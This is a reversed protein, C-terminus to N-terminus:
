KVSLEDKWMFEEDACKQLRRLRRRRAHVRGRPLAAGGTNLM